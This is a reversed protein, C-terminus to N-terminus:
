SGKKKIEPTRLITGVEINSRVAAGLGGLATQEAESIYRLATEFRTEGPFKRAVAMLLTQLNKSNISVTEAIEDKSRAMKREWYFFYLNVGMEIISVFIWLGLILIMWDPITFIIKDM